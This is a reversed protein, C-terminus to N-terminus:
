KGAQGEMRAITLDKENIENKANDLKIQTSILEHKINCLDDDKSKVEEELLAIKNKAKFYDDAMNLLLLLNQYQGNLRKYADEGEFDSIKSNIYSAVKQLYEESEYGSIYYVKGGIIVEIESKGTM